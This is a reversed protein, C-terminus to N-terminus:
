FDDNEESNDYDDSDDYDCIASDYDEDEDYCYSDDFVDDDKDDYEDTDSSNDCEKAIHNLIGLGLLEEALNAKEDGDFDFFEDFLGM